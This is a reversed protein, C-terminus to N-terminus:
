HHREGCLPNHVDRVRPWNAPRSLISSLDVTQQYIPVGLIMGQQEACQNWWLDIVIVRCAMTLNLGEGGCKLSAILVKIDADDRFNNLSANRADDSM